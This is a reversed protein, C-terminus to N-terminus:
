DKIGAMLLGLQERTATAADVEDIVEGQYMVAIRDALSMIEDLEASVLLVAAGEDRQAIIQQHIFEISGVDIGRTPQSAILLRPERSFERAVVLKQQNGGSLSGGSTLASPTRIDYKEILDEAHEVASSSNLILGNTPRWNLLNLFGWRTGRLTFSGAFHSIISFLFAMILLSLLAVMMPDSLYQAFSGTLARESPVSSYRAPVNFYDLLSPWINRRWLHLWGFRLGAFVLGFGVGYMALLPFLQTTNPAEAYPAEYYDNLILNNAVSFPKVLGFRLRDEPVHAVQADKIRRPTIETSQVVRMRLLSDYFSTSKETGRWTDLALSLLILIIITGFFGFIAATEPYSESGILWYLRDFLVLAAGYRIPTQLIYRILLLPNIGISAEGTPVQLTIVDNVEIRIGQMIKGLTQGFASWMLFHYVADIVLFSIITNNSALKFHEPTDGLYSIFYSVIIAITGIFLLDILFAMMRQAYSALPPHESKLPQGMLRVSGEDLKRLGTLVEVLETQGNGQVGAIGLVEGARVNFSVGKLAPAGRNDLAHLGEVELIPEAPQAVDKDVRLLVERGVMMAALSSETAETPTTTGVVAGGRMVVIRNAVEFVEKLKHTIFIISVGEAALERMIRFLEKGEQPRLVATPEDLILVDVERYLAKIIEVRQQVGVPLNEVIATPDVELGYQESLQRVYQEAKRTDRVSLAVYLSSLVADIITDFPNIPLIEGQRKLRDQYTLYITAGIALAGVITLVVHILLSLDGSLIFLAGVYIAWLLALIGLSIGSFAEPFQQRGRWTRIGLIAFLILVISLFIDKVIIPTEDVADRLVPDLGQWENSQAKFRYAENTLEEETTVTYAEDIEALLTEFQQDFSDGSQEIGRWNPKYTPYRTTSGKALPNVEEGEAVVFDTPELATSISIEPQNQLIVTAIGMQAVRFALGGLWIAVLILGVRWAFGWVIRMYASATEWYDFLLTLGYAIGFSLGASLALTLGMPVLFQLTEEASQTIVLFALTALLIFIGLFAQWWTEHTEGSPLQGVRWFAFGYSPILLIALMGWVPLMEALITDGTSIGGVIAAFLMIFLIERTSRFHSQLWRFFTRVIILLVIALIILVVQSFISSGHITDRILVNVSSETLLGVGIRLVFIVLAAVAGIVQRTLLFDLPVPKDAKPALIPVFVFFPLFVAFFLLVATDYILSQADVWNDGMFNGLVAFLPSNAYTLQYGVIVVLLTLFLGWFLNLLKPREREEGLIVNEAVSMVNVLQFHQHVMGIGSHIAERPNTFRVEKGQLYIEGEDQQYLGYVINMLTSKGAGNEGLLALIEGRRLKFNVASNALVGPFRKTIDRAELVVDSDSEVPNPTMNETPMVDDTM